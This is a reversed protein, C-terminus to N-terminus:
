SKMAVAVKTVVSDIARYSSNAVSIVGEGWETMVELMEGISKNQRPNLPMMVGVRTHVSAGVSSHQRPDRPARSDPCDRASATRVGGM